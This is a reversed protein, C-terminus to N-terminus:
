KVIQLIQGPVILAQSGDRLFGVKDKNANLIKGWSNGNGYVAESIEWLTDGLKVQYDGIGIDGQQYDTARWHHTRAIVDQNAQSKEVATLTEAKVRQTNAGDIVAGDNGKQVVPTTQVTGSVVQNDTNVNVTDSKKTIIGYLGNILLFLGIIILAISVFSGFYRLKLKLGAQFDALEKTDSSKPKVISKKKTAMM